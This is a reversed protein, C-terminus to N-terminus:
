LLLLIIIVPIVFHDGRALIQVRQIYMENGPFRARSNAKQLWPYNDKSYRFAPSTGHGVHCLTQANINCAAVCSSPGTDTLPGILKYNNSPPPEPPSYAAM